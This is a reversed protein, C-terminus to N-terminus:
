LKSLLSIINSGFYVLRHSPARACTLGDGKRCVYPCTSLYKRLKAVTTIVIVAKGNQNSLSTDAKDPWKMKTEASMARGKPRM